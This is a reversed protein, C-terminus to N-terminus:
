LLNSLKTIAFPVLMEDESLGGHHGLLDFKKGKIHEYWTTHNKYPLILLNGVRDYFEKRPKGKGFLGMKIAEETKVVKAKEKLKKSLFNYMKDLKSQEIHLFVNRPSGTPLIPKKKKSKQFSNVLERYKNLYVTEKPSVNLQGHDTTILFLTESAVKRDIKELLEKKLLFSLVSLEAYYEETHPGYKHEIPDLDGVYVYFYVPGKEIELTKRLRVVLDSFNIFPITISGKHVLKSYASYAYSENIFTFSRIGSKKLTQYITNGRYLIKPNVGAELLRDQGKKDLPSFPLTNIIMDIEKFYLVWELLAHEQPTLGTNITTLTAATTSPFISTLPSVVGKQSFINFFEYNKYYKLWQNYGFGDVLLLVIKNSNGTEIKDKYLESPLIPRESKIGFFKLITSPINSFCYKEYFPYIFEGEKRQKRIANELERVIM